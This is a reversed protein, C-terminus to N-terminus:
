SSIRVRVIREKIKAFADDLQSRSPVDFYNEPASACDKLMTGTAVNPEELRITYVEMGQAKANNCAALTRGNMASNSASSGGATIGLRGDVLYGFSSYTSGLINSANGLVNSGDTLVIMIKNMNPTKKPDSGQSFPEGPSLVRMGWAVGEMINTNGQAQLADVKTKLGAYDSSLATIPQSVCGFGPGTKGYGNIARTTIKIYQRNNNGPGSNRVGLQAVVPDFMGGLLPAGSADTAVGYKAWRKKKQAVSSDLVRADSVIYNNIFGSDPEDIAFAPVFLTEPKSPDAPADSVDYDGNGAQRTEVCGSWTQDMNENLQFRSAGTGLESQPIPNMGKLDLWAAGTGAIQKGSKDFSPGFGQGVNVFSSFPILAFKLKATDNVQTSMTDILGNVADKMSALKGGAMSGTTDLVLGVEYSAYAIDASSAAKVPWGSYGFLGGFAIPANAVGKVTFATGNHVVQLSSVDLKTNQAVFLAAVERARDDSIDKGERAIALVAADFTNQLDSRTRTITSYDLAMGVGLLLPMAMISTIIAFNGARDGAFGHLVKRM